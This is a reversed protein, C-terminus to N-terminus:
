LRDFYKRECNLILYKVKTSTVHTIFFNNAVDHIHRNIRNKTSNSLYEPILFVALHLNIAFNEAVSRHLKSLACEVSSTWPWSIRHKGKVYRKVNRKGEGCSPLTNGIIRKVEISMMKGDVYFIAEPVKLGNFMKILESESVVPNKLGLRDFAHIESDLSLVCSPLNKKKKSMGIPAINTKQFICNAKLYFFKASTYVQTCTTRTNFVLFHTHLFAWSSASRGRRARPPCKRRPWPSTRISTAV